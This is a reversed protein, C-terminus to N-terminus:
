PAWNLGESRCTKAPEYSRDFEAHASMRLAKTKANAPQGLPQGGPHAGHAGPCAPHMECAYYIGSGFRAQSPRLKMMAGCEPCILDAQYYLRGGITVQKPM